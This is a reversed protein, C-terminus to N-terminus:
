LRILFNNLVSPPTPRSILGYHHSEGWSSNSSLLCARSFSRSWLGPRVLRASRPGLPSGPAWSPSTLQPGPPFLHGLLSRRDLPKDGEGPFQTGSGLGALNTRQGRDTGWRDSPSGPQSLCTEGEPRPLSSQASDQPPPSAARPASAQVGAALPPAAPPQGFGVAAGCHGAASWGPAPPPSRDEAGEGTRQAHM